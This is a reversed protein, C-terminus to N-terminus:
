MAKQRRAEALYAEYKLLAGEREHGCDYPAYLPLEDRYHVTVYWTPGGPIITENLVIREDNSIADDKIVAHRVGNDNNSSGM